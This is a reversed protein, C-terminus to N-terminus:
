RLRWFNPGGSVACAHNRGVESHDNGVRRMIRSLVPDFQVIHANGEPDLLAVADVTSGEEIWNVRVNLPKEILSVDVLIPPGGPTARKLEAIFRAGLHQEFLPQAESSLDEAEEVAAQYRLDGPPRPKCGNAHALSACAVALTFLRSLSLTEPRM